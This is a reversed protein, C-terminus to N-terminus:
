RRPASRPPAGLPRGGPGGSYTLWPVTPQFGVGPKSFDCVGTPFADQLSRWEADTFRATFDQQRLPKLQCKMTAVTARDGAVTRPERFYPYAADCRALDDSRAGDIWCASRADAPRNRVVKDAPTGSARDAAIATLWREMVALTSMTSPPQIWYSHTNAHGNAIELRARNVMTRFPYHYDNNNTGRVALEPIGGLARGFTVQGTRHLIAAVAPDIASRAKQWQGDIDYGGVNANLHAFQAPSIIGADLALRGYEVGVNDFVAPAKGDPRTGLVSSMFDQFTCRVGAPNTAAHFSRDGACETGDDPRNYDGVRQHEINFVNTNAAGWGGIATRAEVSYEMGTETMARILLGSDAFERYAGSISDEWDQTPRLGDLVGPYADAILHQLLAGGSSGEGVTFRIEGYTEVIHEKLMMTTEAATVFNAHQGNILMSSTAVLYGMALAEDDLVSGPVGQVYRQSTGAGYKVLVKHAWQPQPAWPQWSRSPDFLVAIEHIGRNMTGREVRVIFPVPGSPTSAVAVDGPAPGSTPYPVFTGQTTRYLYRVRTPANCAADVAPGLAPETETSCAWPQVQPGSFVPGGVSHNVIEITATSGGSRVSLLNSGPELGTLLGYTRGDGRRAFASSVDAGRLDARLGSLGGGTIEVLADGGSILDARNSLVHITLEGAAPSQTRTGVTAAAVATGFVVASLMRTSM